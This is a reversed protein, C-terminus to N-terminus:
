REQLFDVKSIMKIDDMMMTSVDDIMKMKMMMMM